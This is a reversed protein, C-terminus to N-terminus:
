IWAIYGPKDGFALLCLVTDKKWKKNNRSFFDLATDHKEHVTILKINCKIITVYLVTIFIYNTIYIYIVVTM